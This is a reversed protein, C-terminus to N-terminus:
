MVPADVSVEEHSIMLNFIGLLMLFLITKQDASKDKIHIYYGSKFFSTRPKFQLLENEHKDYFVWENNLREYLEWFYKEGRAISLMGDGKWSNYNFISVPEAINEENIIIRPNFLGKKILTYKKDFIECVASKKFGDRIDIAGVVRNENIDVLKYKGTSSIDQTWKYEASESLDAFSKFNSGNVPQRELIKEFWEM